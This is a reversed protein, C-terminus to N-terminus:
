YPVLLNLEAFPQRSGDGMSAGPTHGEGMVVGHARPAAESGGLTGGWM